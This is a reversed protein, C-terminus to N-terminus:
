RIACHISACVIYPFFMRSNRQVTGILLCYAIGSNLVFGILLGCAPLLRPVFRAPEGAGRCIVCKLLSKSFLFVAYLEVLLKRFECFYLTNNTTSQAPFNWLACALVTSIISMSVFIGAILKVKPALDMKVFENGGMLPKVRCFYPAIM